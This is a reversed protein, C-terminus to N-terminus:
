NLEYKRRFIFSQTVNLFTILSKSQLSDVFCETRLIHWFASKREGTNEFFMKETAVLTDNISEKLM